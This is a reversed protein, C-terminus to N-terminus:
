KRNQEQDGSRVPLDYRGPLFVLRLLHYVNEM